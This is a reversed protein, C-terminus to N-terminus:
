NMSMYRSHANWRNRKLVILVNKVKRLFRIRRQLLGLWGLLMYFLYGYIIGFSIPGKIDKSFIQDIGALLVAWATFLTLTKGRKKNSFAWIIKQSDLFYDKNYAIRITKPFM